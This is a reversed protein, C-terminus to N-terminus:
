ITGNVGDKCIADVEDIRWVFGLDSDKHTRGSYVGVLESHSGITLGYSNDTKKVLTDEARHRMVASGSSGRRTRADILMAPFFTGDHLGMAPESAITGRMWLPLMPGTVLGDPYGVIFVDQGPALTPWKVGPQSNDSTPQKWSTILARDDRNFQMVAVDVDAGYDPHQKWIPKWDEGIIPLSYM